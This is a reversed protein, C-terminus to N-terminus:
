ETGKSTCKSLFSYYFKKLYSYNKQNKKSQTAVCSRPPTCIVGFVKTIIVKRHYEVVPLRDNKPKKQPTKHRARLNKEKTIPIYMNRILLFIQSLTTRERPLNLQKKRTLQDM